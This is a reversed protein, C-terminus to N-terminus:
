TSAVADRPATDAEPLVYNGDVARIAGAALADALARYSTRPRCGVAGSLARVVEAARPPRGLAKRLAVVVQATM